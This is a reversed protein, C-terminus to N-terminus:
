VLGLRLDALVRGYENMSEASPLHNMCTPLELAFAARPKHVVTHM